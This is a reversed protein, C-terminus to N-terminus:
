GHGIASSTHLPARDALWEDLEAGVRRLVPAWDGCTEQRFVRATPYWLSDTRGLGWRWDAVKPVMVWVEKGMAGALHAVATDVAIVLDLNAILAATENFDTAYEMPNCINWGALIRREMDTPLAQISCAGEGCMSMLSSFHDLTVSRRRENPHAKRGRWVFGVRARPIHARGWRVRDKYDARIYPGSWPVTHERTEFLYPLSSLTTHFAHVPIDNWKNHTSAVGEIRNFIPKMEESCGIFLESVRERAMGIYRAFQISDGYGQDAILFLKANPVSMGNWPMSTLHPYKVADTTRQRWEYEAFGRQYDGEALLVQALGLHADGNEHDLGIAKILYVKAEEFRDVDTLTLAHNTWIDPTEDNLRLANEGAEIAKDIQCNARYASELHAWWGAQKHITLAEEIFQIAENTEGSLLCTVGLTCLAEANHPDTALIDRCITASDAHRKERLAERADTLTVSLGGKAAWSGRSDESRSGSAGDYHM